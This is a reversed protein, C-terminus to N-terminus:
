DSVSYSGLIKVFACHERLDKIAENVEVTEAHGLFDVYFYYPGHVAGPMPRSQILTLNLNHASFPALARYLAGARHETTFIVSTKDNGTPTSEERGIVFFRTRNNPQDEINSALTKLGHAEAAEQTAIAAADDKGAVKAAAAATSAENVLDAKPLNTRLWRRCQALPQPHSHVTRIADMSCNAVLQLHVPVYTETCISLDTEFLCDLTRAEVGQISNEIPVIGFDATGREVVNFTDEISPTAQFESSVGFYNLAAVHSFTYEPGLFSVKLPYQLSRCASIVQRYIAKLTDEDLPGLDRSVLAELVAAERAPDYVNKGSDAKLQGIQEATKAREILLDIIESDLADIRQRIDDLSM